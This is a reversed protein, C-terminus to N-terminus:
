KSLLRYPYFRMKLECVNSWRNTKWLKGGVATTSVHFCLHLRLCGARHSHRATYVDSCTTMSHGSWKNEALFQHPGCLSEGPELSARLILHEGILGVTHFYCFYSTASPFHSKFEIMKVTLKHLTCVFKDLVWLIVTSMWIINLFIMKQVILWSQPDASVLNFSLWSRCIWYM